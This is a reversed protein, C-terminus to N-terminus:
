PAFWPNAIDGSLYPTGTLSGATAGDIRYYVVGRSIQGGFHPDANMNDGVELITGVGKQRLRVRDFGLFNFVAIEDFTMGNITVPGDLPSAMQAWNNVIPTASGDQYIEIVNIVEATPLPNNNTEQRYDFSGGGDFTRDGDQDERINVGDAQALGSEPVAYVFELEYSVGTSSGCVMQWVFIRDPAVSGSPTDVTVGTTNTFDVRAVFCDGGSQQLVIVNREDLAGGASPTLYYDSLSTGWPSANAANELAAFNANVEAAVAPQGAVFTHPLTVATASTSAALAVITTLIRIKM